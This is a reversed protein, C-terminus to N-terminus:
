RMLVDRVALGYRVRLRQLEWLGVATVSVPAGLMFVIRLAAPVGAYASTFRDLTTEWVVTMALLPPM